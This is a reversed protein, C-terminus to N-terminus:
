INNREYKDELYHIEDFIQRAVKLKEEELFKQGTRTTTNVKTNLESIIAAIRDLATQKEIYM